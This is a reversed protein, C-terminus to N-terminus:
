KGAAARRGEDPPHHESPATELPPDAPPENRLEQPSAEAARHRTTQAERVLQLNMTWHCSVAVLITLHFLEHPGLVGELIVPMRLLDLVAGVSYAVGGAFFLRLTQPRPLILHWTSYGVFWGLGLYFTLSLWEPLLSYFATKLVLGTLALTWVLSLMTWRKRGRCLTAYMPTCTGAIMLWIGAHDLLLLVARPIGGPDLLHFVGSMALMNVTALFFVALAIRLGPDGRFRRLQWLGLVLAVGAALLHTMSSVPEAFGPIAHLTHLPEMLNVTEPPPSTKLNPIPPARIQM